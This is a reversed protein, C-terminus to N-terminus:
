NIDNYRSLWFLILIHYCAECFDLHLMGVNDGKDFQDTIETLLFFFFLQFRNGIFGGQQFININAGKTNYYTIRPNVTGNGQGLDSQCDKCYRSSRM